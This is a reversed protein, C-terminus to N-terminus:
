DVRREAGVPQETLRHKGLKHFCNPCRDTHEYTDSGDPHRIVQATIVVEVCKCGPVTCGFRLNVKSSMAPSGNKSRISMAARTATVSERM